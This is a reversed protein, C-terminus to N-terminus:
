IVGQAALRADVREAPRRGLARVDAAAGRREREVRGPRREPRPGRREEGHFRRRAVLPAHGAVRGDDVARPVDHADRRRRGVAGLRARRERAAEEEVLRRAAGREEDLAVALREGRRHERRRRRGHAAAVRRGHGERRRADLFRGLVREAADARLRAPRAVVEAGEVVLGRRRELDHGLAPFGPLRVLIERERTEGDLGRVREAAVHVDGLGDEGRLGLEEEVPLPDAGAHRGVDRLVAHDRREPRRARGDERRVVLAADARVVVDAAVPARLEDALGGRLLVDHRAGVVLPAVRQVPAEHARRAPVVARRGAPGVVLLDGLGQPVLERRVVDLAEVLRLVTQEGDGADLGEARQEERLAVRVRARREVVVEAVEPLLQAVIRDVLEDHAPARRHAVDGAVPLDERLVEHLVVM